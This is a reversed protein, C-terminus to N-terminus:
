RNKRSEASFGNALLIASFLAVVAVDGTAGGSPGGEGGCGLVGKPTPAQSVEVVIPLAFKEGNSVTIKAVRRKSTPNDDASAYIQGYFLEGSDGATIHCWSAGETVEAKWKTNSTSRNYVDFAVTRAFSSIFQIQPTVYFDPRDLVTVKRVASARNGASDTVTYTIPYTGPVATTLNGSVKIQATLDGDVNDVATAGADTYADGLNVTVNTDGVISIVPAADDVINVVRVARAVNGSHDQATFVFEYSGPASANAPPTFVISSTVDGDVIDYASAGPDSYASGFSVTVPNQGLLTILPPTTDVISVNRTAIAENGATDTVSYTLTYVGLQGVNVFGNTIVRNSIDGDLNDSATVGPETYFSGAELSLDTAGTLTLLPPTKDITYTEGELSGNGQGPGGLLNNNFDLISDNDVLDLRLTGDGSGTNVTVTYRDNQGTVSTISAGSVAKAADATIAFDNSSVGQVAENFVVNYHVIGSKTPSADARTISVVTPPVADTFQYAGIDIKGQETPRAVGDLDSYTAYIAAAMGIAASTALLHFDLAAPNRFSPDGTLNNSAGPITNNIEDAGTITAPPSAISVDVANQFFLSNGPAVFTGDTSIAADPSDSFISNNLSVSAGGSVYVSSYPNDTFTCQSVIHTGTNLTIGLGTNRSVLSDLVQSNPGKIDIASSGNVSSSYEVICRQIKIEGSFVPQVSISTSIAAGGRTCSNGFFTSQIIDVSDPFPQLDLGGGYQASNSVFNSGSVTADSLLIVAGGGWLDAENGDFVCGSITIGSSTEVYLGAGGDAHNHAFTCNQIAIPSTKLFAGGGLSNQKGHQVENNEFRCNGISCSADLSDAHLGGGETDSVAGRIVLGDLRTNNLNDMTVGRVPRALTSVDIVTDNAPIDREEPLSETGAFGGFVYVGSRMTISEAYTGKKVFVGDGANGANIAEQITCYATAWSTGDGSPCHGSDVYLIAASATAATSLAFLLGFLPAHRM